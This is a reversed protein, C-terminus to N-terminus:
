AHTSRSRHVVLSRGVGLHRHVIVEHWRLEVLEARVAVEPHSQVALGRVHGDLHHPDRALTACMFVRNTSATTDSRRPAERTPHPPLSLGATQSETSVSLPDIVSRVSMLSVEDPATLESCACSLLM